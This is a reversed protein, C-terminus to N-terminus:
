RMDVGWIGYDAALALLAKETQEHQKEKPVGHEKIIYLLMLALIRANEKSIVRKGDMEYIMESITDPQEEEDDEDDEIEVEFIDDEDDEYATDWEEEAWEDDEDDEDEDEDELVSLNQLEYEMATIVESPTECGVRCDDTQGVIVPTITATDTIVEEAEAYEDYVGLVEGNDLVVYVMQKM